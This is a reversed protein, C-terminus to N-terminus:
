IVQLDNSVRNKNVIESEFENISDKWSILPCKEAKGM